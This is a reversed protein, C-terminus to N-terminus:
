TFYEPKKLALESPQINARNLIWGRLGVLSNKAARRQALLWLVADM